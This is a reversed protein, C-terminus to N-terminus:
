RKTAAKMGRAYRELEELLKAKDDLHHEIISGIASGVIVGDAGMARAEDVHQPASVGSGLLLPAAGAKKLVGISHPSSHGAARDASTTGARSLLYTYSGSRRAAEELVDDEANPPAIAAMDIGATEAAEDWLPEALRMSIPVDPLLVADAGAAAARAFFDEPGKVAALNVYAMISVPLEPHSERLNGVLEFCKAVTAGADLARHASEELVPGDATPDSFPIGLELADAGARVLAELIEASIEPTPDCLNVFPVFALEHKASLASFLRAFRGTRGTNSSLTM